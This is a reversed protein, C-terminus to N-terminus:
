CCVFAEEHKSIRALHILMIRDYNGVLKM